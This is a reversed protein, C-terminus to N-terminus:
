EALNFRWRGFPNFTLADASGTCEEWTVRLRPWSLEPRFTEGSTWKGFEVLVYLHFSDFLFAATELNPKEPECVDLVSKSIVADPFGLLHMGCTFSDNSDELSLQVFARFVSTWFEQTAAPHPGSNESLDTWYERSHAIMSSECIVPEAGMGLLKAGLKLFDHAVSPGGASGFQESRIRLFKKSGAIRELNDESISSSGSMCSKLLSITGEDADFIEHHISENELLPLAQQQFEDNLPLCLVVQPLSGSGTMEVRLRHWDAWCNEPDVDIFGRREDLKPLRESPVMICSSKDTIELVEAETLACGKKSEGLALLQALPPVFVPTLENEDYPM